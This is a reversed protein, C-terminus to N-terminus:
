KYSNIQNRYMNRILRKSINKMKNNINIMQKKNNPVNNTNNKNM